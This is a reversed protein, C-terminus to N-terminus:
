RAMEDGHRASDAGLCVGNLGPGDQSLGMEPRFPPPISGGCGAPSPHEGSFPRPRGSRPDSKAQPAPNWAPPLNQVDKETRVPIGQGLITFRGGRRRPSGGSGQQRLPLRRDAGLRLLDVGGM